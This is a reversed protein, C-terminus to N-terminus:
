STPASDRNVLRWGRAHTRDSWFQSYIGGAVVLESHTGRAVIRGADLVLIQDADLVTQLRHAIVLLTRRRALAAITAGVVADNEPDLAATAEDLVVIPADKLLARAISVRQRQGGSLTSGGEGIRTHWGQPLEAIVDDLGALTAVRLLDEDDATPKGLRVNDALSGEFLYVDQFVFSVLSMLEETPIDRVDVGGVSVGGGTVDWFRAVLRAVTTKGSGSPGVLATLSREPLDFTVERLVPSEDYAFRVSRFAVASGKPHSPTAPDPLGPTDLVANIRDLANAVLRSSAGLEAGASVSEVLGGALVLVALLRPPALMGEITLYVGLVLVATFALRVAFAFSVLGPVVLRIMSRDAQRQTVLAEDLAHHGEVTRGFARLVRQAQAFEVVENAADTTARHRGRDARTVTRASIVLVAVLVPAAITVALALRIDILYLGLAVTPPTLAASTLPRLLHAPLNMVQLVSQSNLTALEGVRDPSFWGLPLRAIREGLRRHLVSSMSAGTVFGARQGAWQLAAAGTGTGALAGLHPWVSDPDPGLLAEVVPVSLAYTIGQLIAAGSMVVLLRRFPGSGDRGLARLLGRIM